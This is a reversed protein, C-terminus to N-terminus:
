LVLRFVCPIRVKSYTSKLQNLCVPYMFKAFKSHTAFILQLFRSTHLVFEEMFNASPMTAIGEFSSFWVFVLFEHKTCTANMNWNAWDYLLYLGWLNSIRQTLISCYIHIHTTLTLEQISTHLKSCGFVHSYIKRLHSIPHRKRRALLWKECFPCYSKLTRTYQSGCWYTHM